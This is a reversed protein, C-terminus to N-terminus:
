AQARSSMGALAALIRGVSAATPERGTDARLAPEDEALPESNGLQRALVALDAESADQGALSRRAVRERLLAPDAGCAVILWPLHAEAALARFPERQWRRLCAADVVVPWGAALVRRALRDLEAYTARTAEERYLGRDLGSGSKMDPAFGELRKREVDSRLRVMGGAELLAQSVVTKGSGSPGHMLVLAPSRQRTLRQALAIHADLDAQAARRVDEGAGAQCARIAAIKARVMARYVLYADFVELGAYDGTAELYANLFRHALEDRGRLQLDMVLFAVESAVDVWRLGANFEIGDFPVALGDVWAVNGLHLDGHCERVFGGARRAQYAPVLEAHRRRSWAEIADLAALRGPDQRPGQRARIQGFNELMPAAIADASGYADQVGCAPIRLHFDAIVGALADIHGRGLEGSAALRDYLASQPFRRMKVAYEIAGAAEAAGFVPAAEPGFIAVVDLYLQPALRRNLRLEEECYFRRAGLTTFDLFGLNVPKKIKYAYDGALLVHSIHTEIQEVAAAPHPYRSPDGLAAILAAQGHASGPEAM